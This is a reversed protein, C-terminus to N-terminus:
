AALTDAFEDSERITMGAAHERREKAKTIQANITGAPEGQAGAEAAMRAAEGAKRM